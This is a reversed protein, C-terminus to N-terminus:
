NCFIVKRKHSLFTYFLQHPKEFIPPPHGHKIEFMTQEEFGSDFSNFVCFCLKAQGVKPPNMWLTIVIDVISDDCFCDLLTLRLSRSRRMGRVSGYTRNV